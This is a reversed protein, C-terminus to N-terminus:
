TADADTLEGLEVDTLRLTAAALNEELHTVKSTGPIPLVVESRALLWALAVQSPRADHAAAIRDVPGGPRTLEGAAVPAWPIFGIGHRTCHELVDASSRDTLNYRNQVTAIEAIARAQEIQDVTVQSLGIAVIKGEDQLGKLEGVQDELPVQPDVRHLQFLDIHDLGLRRLSLLAQQRLYEPRGLPPWAKPGLRVLGDRTRITDPGNRTLGAKTAILVDDPYPHIAERIIEESVHPGYSDATDILQVGLEVARRVVRVCEDRDAPEGWVGLGTLRMAGFGLRSVEKGAIKFTGATDFLATTM